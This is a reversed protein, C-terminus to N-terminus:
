ELGWWNEPQSQNPESPLVYKQKLLKFGPTSKLEGVIENWTDRGNRVTERMFDLSMTLDTDTIISGGVVLRLVFPTAGLAVLGSATINLLKEKPSKPDIIVELVQPGITLAIKIISDWKVLQNTVKVKTIKENLSEFKAALEAVLQPFEFPKALIENVKKNYEGWERSARVTLVDELSLSSLSKIYLGQALTDFALRQLAYIVDKINKDTISAPRIVDDLDGLAVRPPSNKPTLTFRGLADPLNVNYKLDFIQKLESAFPKSSDYYGDSTKSGDVCVFKEYLQNRTVAKGESAIDLAFQAVENLRLRFTPIQNSVVKFHLALHEPQGEANITQIYRHYVRTFKKIDDTQNGWDFRICSSKTNQIMDQWAIWQNELVPFSPKEDPSNETFLYPIIVPNPRSLLKMFAGRNKSELYEDELASNNFLFARNVVVQEGYVLARRWETLILKKRKAKIKEDVLRNSNKIMKSLLDRPVWQNDLVQPVIAAPKLETPKLKEFDITM